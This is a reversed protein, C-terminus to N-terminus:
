PKGSACPGRLKSTRSEIATATHIRKCGEPPDDLFPVGDTWARRWNPAPAPYKTAPDRDEAEVPAAEAAEANRDKHSAFSM